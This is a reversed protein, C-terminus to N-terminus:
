RECLVPVMALEIEAALSNNVRILHMVGNTTSDNWRNCANYSGDANLLDEM